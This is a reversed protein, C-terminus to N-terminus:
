VFSFYQQRLALVQSKSRSLEILLDNHYQPNLYADLGSINTRLSNFLDRRVFLTLLPERNECYESLHDLVEGTRIYDKRLAYQEAQRIDQLLMDTPRAIGIHGFVAFAALLLLVIGAARVRGM